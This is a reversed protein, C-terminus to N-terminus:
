AIRNAYVIYRHTNVRYPYCSILTATAGGHNELVGVDDPDVIESSTIEYTYTTSQTQIQFTDGPQLQDIHQFLQGYVDNHASLVVNGIDDGPSTGNVLQGVGQKLAEWDVGQVISQSINLRPITLIVATEGTQPPRAVVPQMWQSQVLPLLNSPVEDYNFSVQGTDSIQHGGPLVYNEMRLSPTPAITPIGARRQEEALAQASATEQELGHIATLLNFGILVIGLVAAAEVALLSYDYWRRRRKSSRQPSKPPADVFQLEGGRAGAGSTALVPMQMPAVLMEATESQQFMAELAPVTLAPSAPASPPLGTEPEIVRGHRQMKEKAQQRAERKKIALIQELEEISLEDVSRKDRM